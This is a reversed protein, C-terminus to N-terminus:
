NTSHKLCSFLTIYVFTLRELETSNYNVIREMDSEPVLSLELGAFEKKWYVSKQINQVVKLYVHLFAGFGINGNSMLKPRFISSYDNVNSYFQM